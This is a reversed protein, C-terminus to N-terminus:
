LRCFNILPSSLFKAAFNVAETEDLLQEQMATFGSDDYAAPKKANLFDFQAGNGSKQSQLKNM